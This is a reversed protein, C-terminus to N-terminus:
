FGDQSRARLLSNTKKQEELQARAVDLLPANGVPMLGIRQRETVQPTGASNTKKFQSDIAALDANYSAEANRYARSTTAYDGPTKGLGQAADIKAIQEKYKMKRLARAKDAAPLTNILDSTSQEGIEALIAEAEDGIVVEALRSRIKKRVDELAQKTEPTSDLNAAEANALEAYMRDGEGALLRKSSKKILNSLMQGRNAEGIGLDAASQKEQAEAKRKSLLFGTTVLLPALAAFGGVVAMISTGMMTLGQAVQPAQQAFVTIPNAGSALSALTDRAVSTFMTAAVSGRIGARGIRGGASSVDMRNQEIRAFEEARVKAAYTEIRTRDKTAKTWFDIYSARAAPPPAAPNFITSAGSMSMRKAAASAATEM